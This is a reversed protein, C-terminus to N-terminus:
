RVIEAKVTLTIEPNKPDNTILTISKEDAGAVNISSYGLVLPVTKGKKIVKNAIQPNLCNCGRVIRRIILDKNGKNSIMFTTSPTDAQSLKGFDHTTKNLVARPAKKLEKASMGSFDERVYANLYFVKVPLTDDTTYVKVEQYAPGYEVPSKPFYKLKIMLDTNPIFEDYMLNVIVNRPRDIKLIKIRKNSLNYMMIWASDYGNDTVNFTFTNSNVAVKGYEYKYTDAFSFKAPSVTGYIRLEYPQESTNTYVRLNKSFGGPRGVPNYTADVFGVAGPALEETSWTTNTCGCDADVRKVLLPATGTNKFYFKHSVRGGTENVLGFDHSMSEFTIVPKQPLSQEQKESKPQKKQGYGGVAFCLLCLLALYFRNM